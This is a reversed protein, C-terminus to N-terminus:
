LREHEICFGWREEYYSSRYPIWRPHEPLSYLHAKLEDLGVRRHVPVSYQLVHLNSRRFDIVREGRANKVWADRINWEKPVTWDFVATGSPVEHLTLPVLRQLRRLTERLGEGSLSRCLPYLDAVCDYLAGGLRTEDFSARLQELTM